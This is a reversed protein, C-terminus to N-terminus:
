KKRKRQLKPLTLVYEISEGVFGFLAERGQEVGDPFLIYGKKVPGDPFYRLPVAKQERLLDDKTSEPLKMALGVPTLSLCIREEAYLAAGGFFHKCELNVERPLDATAEAVFVSM